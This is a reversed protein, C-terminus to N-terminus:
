AGGGKATPKRSARGSWRVLPLVYPPGDASPAQGELFQVLRGAQDRDRCVVVSGADDVAPSGDERIVIWGPAGSRASM